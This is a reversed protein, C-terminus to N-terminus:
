PHQASPAPAIEGPSDNGCCVCTFLECHGNTLGKGVKPDNCQRVCTKAKICYGQWVRACKKKNGGGDVLGGAEQAGVTSPISRASDYYNPLFFLLPNLSKM